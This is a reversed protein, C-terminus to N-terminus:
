CQVCLCSFSDGNLFTGVEKHVWNIGALDTSLNTNHTLQVMRVDDLHTSM